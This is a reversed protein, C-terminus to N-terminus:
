LGFHVDACIAVLWYVILVSVKGFIKRMEEDDVREPFNTVYLTSRWALHVAVEEGNIRKKDKTLAAPVSERESFEVTAVHTNPLSTIKIDRISGCQWPIDIHLCLHRSALPPLPPTFRVDKFLAKLDDDTTDPPLDAVFVACNERDRILICGNWILVDIM